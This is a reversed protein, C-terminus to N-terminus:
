EGHIMQKMVTPNGKAKAEDFKDQMGDALAHLINIQDEVNNSINTAVKAESETIIISMFKVPKGENAEVMDEIFNKIVNAMRKDLQAQKDNDGLNLIDDAM